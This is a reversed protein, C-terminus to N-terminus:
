HLTANTSLPATTRYGELVQAWTDEPWEAKAYQAYVIGLWRRVPVAPLHITAQQGAEGHFTLAVGADGSAIDVSRALWSISESAADVAPAPQQLRKLEETRSSSHLKNDHDTLWQALRPMLRNLLRQVLWIVVVDGDSTAGSIRLRDETDVYQTTFRHLIPTM